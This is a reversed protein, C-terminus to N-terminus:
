KPAEGTGGADNAASAEGAAKRRWDNPPLTCPWPNPWHVECCARDTFEGTGVQAAAAAAAKGPCGIGGPAPVETLTAGACDRAGRQLEGGQRPPPPGTGAPGLGLPTDRFLRGLARLGAVCDGGGRSGGRWCLGTRLWCLRTRLWCLWTRWWCLETPLWCLGMTRWCLGMRLVRLGTRRVWLGLPRVCLGLPRVCLLVPRMCLGLPRWCSSVPRVCLGVPRMCLGIPWCCCLEIQLVCLGMWRWCLEVQLACRAM